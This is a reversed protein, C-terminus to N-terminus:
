LPEIAEAHEDKDMRPFCFFVDRVFINVHEKNKTQRVKGKCFKRRKQERNM